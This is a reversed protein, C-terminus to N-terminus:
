IEEIEINYYDKSLISQIEDIHKLDRIYLKSINKEENGMYVCMTEKLHEPLDVVKNDLHKLDILKIGDKTRILNTYLPNIFPYFEIGQFQELYDFDEKTVNRMIDGRLYEFIFFHETEKLLKPLLKNGSRLFDFLNYLKDEYILELAEKSVVKTDDIIEFYHFIKTTNKPIVNREFDERFQQKYLLVQKLLVKTLM